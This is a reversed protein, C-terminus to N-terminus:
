LQKKLEGKREEDFKTNIEKIIRWIQYATSNQFDMKIKIEDLISINILYKTLEDSKIM